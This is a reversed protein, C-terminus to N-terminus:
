RESVVELEVNNYLYLYYSAKSLRRVVDQPLYLLLAFPNFTSYRLIHGQHQLLAFSSGFEGTTYGFDGGTAPAGFASSAAPAAGSSTAPAGFGGTAPRAASSGFLDGSTAPAGPQSEFGGFGGTTTSATASGFAFSGFGGGSSAAGFASPPTNGFGGTAGFASSTAPQAGFGGVAGTETTTAGPTPSNQTAAALAAAPNTRKLYDEYRVSFEVVEQNKLDAAAVLVTSAATLSSSRNDESLSGM